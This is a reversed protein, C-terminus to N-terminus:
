HLGAVALCGPLGDGACRESGAQLRLEPWIRVRHTFRASFSNKKAASAPSERLDAASSRLAVHDERQRCDAQGGCLPVRRALCQSRRHLAQRRLTSGARSLHGSQDALPRPLAQRSGRRLRSCHNAGALGRVERCPFKGTRFLRKQMECSGLGGATGPPSPDPRRRNKSRQRSWPM